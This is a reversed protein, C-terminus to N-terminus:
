AAELALSRGKGNRLRAQEILNTMYSSKFLNVNQLEFIKRRVRPDFEDYLGPWFSHPADQALLETERNNPQRALKADIPKIPRQISIWQQISKVRNFVAIHRWIWHKFVLSMALRVNLSQTGYFADQLPVNETQFQLHGLISNKQRPSLPYIPFSEEFRKAM